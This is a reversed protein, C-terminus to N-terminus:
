LSVLTIIGADLDERCGEITLAPCARNIVHVVDDAQEGWCCPYCGTDRSVLLQPESRQRLGEEVEHTDGFQHRWQRQRM